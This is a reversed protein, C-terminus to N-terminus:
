KRGKKPGEWALRAELASDAEAAVTTQASYIVMGPLAGSPKRVYRVRTYDVATKGGKGAQSHTAALAAAERISAEDPEQGACRLIM